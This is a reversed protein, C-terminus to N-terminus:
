WTQAAALAAHCSTRNMKASLAISGGPRVRFFFFDEYHLVTLRSRAVSFKVLLEAVVRGGQRNLEAADEGRAAFWFAATRGAAAWQDNEGENRGWSLVMLETSRLSAIRAVPIDQSCVMVDPRMYVAVTWPWESALAMAHVRRLSEFRQYNAAPWDFDAICPPETAALECIARYRGATAM